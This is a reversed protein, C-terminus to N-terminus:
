FQNFLASLLWGAALLFCTLTFLYFYPKGPQARSRLTIVFLLIDAIVVILAISALLWLQLPVLSTAALVIIFVLALLPLLACVLLSRKMGLVVALTHEHNAADEKIDPLSNALNVAVGLLAVIPVQWFVLPSSRGMGVFAYVPILPFAIAFMVGSFPTSKVGLNYAQGCALYLLSILLALGKFPLLLVFMIVMLAISVILAEHSRVLGSVIPKNKKGRADHYRDHYDNFTAISIQMAAHALVLLVLTPWSPHPWGALLALLAVVLVHFLVPGPHSLLFFGKCIDTLNRKKVVDM